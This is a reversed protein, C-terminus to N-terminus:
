LTYDINKLLKHPHNKWHLAFRHQWENDSYYNSFLNLTDEHLHSLQLSFSLYLLRSLFRYYNLFQILFLVKLSVAFFSLKRYTSGTYEVWTTHIPSLLRCILQRPFIECIKQVLLLTSRHIVWFSVTPELEETLIKRFGFWGRFALSKFGM